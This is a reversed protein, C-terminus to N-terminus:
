SAEPAPCTGAYTIAGSSRLGEWVGITQTGVIVYLVSDIDTTDERLRRSWDALDVPSPTPDPEPHTHWHGLYGCTGGSRELALSILYAHASGDFDVGHRRRVDTPQPTTVSDVIVAGSESIIRGLLAGAAETDEDGRQVFPAIQALLEPSFKVARGSPTEITHLKM